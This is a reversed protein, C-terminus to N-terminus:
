PLNSLNPNRFLDNPNTGPLGQPIEEGLERFLEIWFEPFFGDESRFNMPKSEFLREGEYDLYSDAVLESCYMKGNDPLYWWDYPEGIHSKARKLTEEVPFPISIRKIVTFPNLSMFSSLPIERVGQEPSAELVFIEGDDMIEIIGVHVFNLSDGVTTADSIAKSFKSSGEEVFILDGSKLNQANLSFFSICYIFIFSKFLLWKQIM